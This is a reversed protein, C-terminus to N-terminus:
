RALYYRMTNNNTMFSDSSMANKRMQMFLYAAIIATAVLIILKVNDYGNEYVYVTKKKPNTRKVQVQESPPQQMAPVNTGNRQYWIHIAMKQIDDPIRIVKNGATKYIIPDTYPNPTSPVKTIAIHRDYLALKSHVHNMLEESSIPVKNGTEKYNM